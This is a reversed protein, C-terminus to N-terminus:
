AASVRGSQDVGDHQEVVRSSGGSGTAVHHTTRGYWQKVLPELEPCAERVRRILVRRRVRTFASKLDISVFAMDPSQEAEAAVSKHLKELGCSVGVGYQLNSAAQALRDGRVACVAKAVM